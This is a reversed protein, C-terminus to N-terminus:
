KITEKIIVKEIQELEQGRNLVKALERAFMFQGMVLNHALKDKKGQTMESILGRIFDKEQGHRLSFNVTEIEFDIASM